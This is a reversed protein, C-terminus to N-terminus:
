FPRKGGFEIRDVVTQSSAIGATLRLRGKLRGIRTVKARAKHELQIMGSGNMGCRAEAAM